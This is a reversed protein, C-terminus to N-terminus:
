LGDTSDNKVGGKTTKKGELLKTITKNVGVLKAFLGSSDLHETGEWKQCDLFRYKGDKMLFLGYRRYGTWDPSFGTESARAMAYATTQLCVSAYAERTPQSTKIDVICPKGDNLYGVRDLTGVFWWEICFVVKEVGIWRPKYVQEWDLYAQLYPATEPTAELEGGLDYVELAEHVAKGRNAAYELVSPNVKGYSRRLPALIETVSPCAVGDVLYLHEQEDFFIDAKM